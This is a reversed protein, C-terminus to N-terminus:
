CARLTRAVHQGTEVRHILATVRSRKFAVQRQEQSQTTDPVGIEKPGLGYCDQGVIMIEPAEAGVKLLKIHLTVSLVNIELAPLHVVLGPGDDPSLRASVPLVCEVLEDM